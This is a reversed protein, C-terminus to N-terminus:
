NSLPELESLRAEFTQVISLAIKQVSVPTLDWDLQLIQHGFLDLHKSM